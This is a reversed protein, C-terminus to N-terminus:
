FITGWRSGLKQYSSRRSRMWSRSLMTRPLKQPQLKNLFQDFESYTPFMQNVFTNLSVNHKGASEELAKFASESFRFARTVTKEPKVLFSNETKPHSFYNREM